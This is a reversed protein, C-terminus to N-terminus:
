KKGAYAMCEVEVEAGLALASAGFASRAPLRDPKFYTVYIKNFDGWKAMDALMVTCKFVDDFGLGNAKLVTGINEMTQKTEAEIGGAVLQLTGPVNGLAGSLYLVDGVRVAQSFPLKAAAAGPSNRFHMSPEEAGALVASTAAALLGIAFSLTAGMSQM